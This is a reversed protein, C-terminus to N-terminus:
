GLYEDIMSVMMNIYKANKEERNWEVVYLWIENSDSM